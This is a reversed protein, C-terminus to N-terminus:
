FGLNREIDKARPDLGFRDTPLGKPRFQKYWPDLEATVKDPSENEVSAQKVFPNWACGSLCLSLGILCCSLSVSRYHRM